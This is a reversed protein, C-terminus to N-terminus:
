MEDTTEYEKEPDHRSGALELYKTFLQKFESMFRKREDITLSKFLFFPYSIIKMMFGLDFRMSTLFTTLIYATDKPRKEYFVRFPKSLTNLLNNILYPNNYDEALTYEDKEEFVIDEHGGDIAINAADLDSTVSPKSVISEIKAIIDDKSLDPYLRDFITVLVISAIKKYRKGELASIFGEPKGIDKSLAAANVSKEIRATQIHQILDDTLIVKADLM